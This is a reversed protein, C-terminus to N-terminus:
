IFSLNCFTIVQVSAVGNYFSNGTFVAGVLAKNVDIEMGTVRVLSEGHREAVVNTRAAGPLNVGGQDTAFAVTIVTASTNRRGPANVKVGTIEVSRGEVTHRLAGDELTVSASIYAPIVTVELECMTMNTDDSSLELARSDEDSFLKDASVSLKVVDVGDYGETPVYELAGSDLALQLSEVAGRAVLGGTYEDVYVWLGPHLNDMAITNNGADSYARLTVTDSSDGYIADAHEITVGQLTLRDGVEVAAGNHDGTVTVVPADPQSFVVVPVSATTAWEENRGQLLLEIVDVGHYNPEPVYTMDALTSSVDSMAGSISMSRPGHHVVETSSNRRGTKEVIQVLGHDSRVTAEVWTTSSSDSGGDAVLAIGLVDLRGDEQLILAGPPPDWQVLGRGIALPDQQYQVDVSVNVSVIEETGRGWNGNDSVTITVNDLGSPQGFPAWFQLLGLAYNSAAIPANFVIRAYAGEASGEIFRVGPIRGQVTTPGFALSVMSGKGATSVNVSILQSGAPEGADADHVTIGSLALMEGGPAKPLGKGVLALAVDIKPADNVPDILVIIKEVGVVTNWGGGAGRRGERAVISLEDSGWVDADPTYVLLGLARNVARTNGAVVMGAGTYTVRLSDTAQKAGPIAVVGNVCFVEVQVTSDATPNSVTIELADLSLQEDEDIQLNRSLSALRSARAITPPSSAEVEVNVTRSAVLGGVDIVELSISDTGSFGDTQSAYRLGALAAAVEELQGYAAISSNGVSM